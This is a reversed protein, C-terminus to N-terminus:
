YLPSHPQNTWPCQKTVRVYQNYDIKNAVKAHVTIAEWPQVPYGTVICHPVEYVYLGAYITGTAAHAPPLQQEIDTDMCASLVWNRVEERDQEDVISHSRPMQFPSTLSSEAVDSDSSDVADIGDDIAEVIDIYRNLLVFALNTYGQNRAAVGAAYLAKDIPVVSHYRLLSVAAKVALEFLGFQMCIRYVSMYQLAMLMAEINHAYQGLQSTFVMLLVKKVDVILLQDTEEDNSLVGSVLTEYLTFNSHVPPCGRSKLVSVAAAYDGQKLNYAANMGAYHACLRSDIQIKDATRWLNDWQCKEALIDLAAGRKGSLLLSDSDARRKLFAQHANEVVNSLTASGISLEKAKEWCRGDIACQVAEEQNGLERQLEAAAEYRDLACLRRAVDQVISRYKCSPLQRRAISIAANWLDELDAADMSPEAHSSLYTNIALDWHKEREYRQATAHIHKKRVTNPNEVKAQDEMVESLQHPVHRRAFNIAEDAMGAKRYMTLASEPKAALIFLKEAHQYHGAHAETRAYATYVDCMASPDHKTATRIADSWAQQHIHMDIAERPKNAKIFESEAEIYKEEDELFLAHKLHVDSLKRQCGACALEFAHEFAGSEIAYEIAPEILNHKSLLAAGAETGLSLAWAYAVRKTASQGGHLSAVRMADQWLDHARYMNVASLWESAKCYHQEADALRMENELHQAMYSHTEKLLEPRHIEVLRVMSQYNHQKKHMDIALDPEKANLYLEEADAFKGVAELQQAHSICLHSVDRPDMYRSAIRHAQKWKRKRKFMEVAKEPMGLALYCREASHLTGASELQSALQLFYPAALAEDMNELMQFAREWQRSKMAAKVAKLSSSAEVYHNIAMEHQNQSCLHDGWAEQLGVVHSPLHVRALEVAKRFSCGLIYSETACKVEDMREYLDGAGEYFGVAALTTAVEELIEPSKIQHKRIIQVARGPLRDKLLFCIAETYAGGIEKITAARSVQSSDILYLVYDQHLFSNVAMSNAEAIIIARKINQLQQYMQVAEVINGQTVLSEEAKSDDKELLASRSRVSCSKGGAMTSTVLKSLKRLYRSQSSNALFAACRESVLFSKAAIAQDSLRDWMSESESSIELSELIDAAEPLKGNDVMRGFEILAEDLLYSATSLNEDVIVETRGPAREIDEVNGRIEHITVQNPAHTNYWVCLQQRSQAVVVDCDPVWQAYTSYNLLTTTVHAELDSLHLRQQKDRFLLKNACTSLELWDVTADHQVM